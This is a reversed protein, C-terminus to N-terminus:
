AVISQLPCAVYNERSFCSASLCWADQAGTSLNVYDVGGSPLAPLFLSPSFSDSHAGEEHRYVSLGGVTGRKEKERKRNEKEDERKRKERMVGKEGSEV